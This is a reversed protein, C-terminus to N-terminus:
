SGMTTRDIGITSPLVPGFVPLCRQSTGDSIQATGPPVRVNRGIQGNQGPRLPDTMSQPMHHLSNVLGHGARQDRQSDDQPDDSQRQHLRQAVPKPARKAQLLDKRHRKGARRGRKSQAEPDGRRAPAALTAVRPFSLPPRAGATSM